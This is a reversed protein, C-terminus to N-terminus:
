VGHAQLKKVTLSKEMIEMGRGIDDLMEVIILRNHADVLKSAIELGILGGGIVM